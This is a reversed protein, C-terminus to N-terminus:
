KIRWEIDIVDITISTLAYSGNDSRRAGTRYRAM